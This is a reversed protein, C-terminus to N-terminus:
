ISFSERRKIEKRAAPLAREWDSKCMLCMSLFCPMGNISRPGAKHYWEWIAGLNESYLIMMASHAEQRRAEAKRWERHAAKHKAQTHAEGKKYEALEEEYQRTAKQRLAETAICEQEWQSIVVKEYATMLEENRFQVAENEDKIRIDYQERANDPAQQWEILSTLNTLDDPDAVIMPEMEPPEPKPPDEPLDPDGPGDYVPAKPEEGPSPPLKPDIQEMRKDPIGLGGLAIPMFAMGVDNHDQVDRDMFIQRDCIGLVFERLDADSYPKIRLRTRGLAKRGQKRCAVVEQWPLLPKTQSTLYYDPINRIARFAEDLTTGKPVDVEIEQERGRIRLVDTDWISWRNKGKTCYHKPGLINELMKRYDNRQHWPDTLNKSLHERLLKGVVPDKTLSLVPVMERDRLKLDAANM